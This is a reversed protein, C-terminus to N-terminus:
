PTGRDLSGKLDPLGLVASHSELAEIVDHQLGPALRRKGNRGRPLGQQAEGNPSRTAAPGIM